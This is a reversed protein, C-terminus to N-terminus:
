IGQSTVTIWSNLPWDKIRSRTSTLPFILGSSGLSCSWARCSLGESIPTSLSAGASRQASPWFFHSLRYALFAFRASFCFARYVALASFNIRCARSCPRIWLGSASGPSASGERALVVVGSLCLFDNPSISRSLRHPGRSKASSFGGAVAIAPLRSVTHVESTSSSIWQCSKCGSDTARNFFLMYWVAGLVCMVTGFNFVLSATAAANSGFSSGICGGGWDAESCCTFACSTDRCPSLIHSWSKLCTAESYELIETNIYCQLYKPLFLAEFAASPM